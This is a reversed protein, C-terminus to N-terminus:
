GKHCYYKVTSDFCRIEVYDPFTQQYCGPPVPAFAHECHPIPAKGYVHRMMCGSLMAAIIVLAVILHKQRVERAM